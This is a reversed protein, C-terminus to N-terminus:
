GCLQVVLNSVEMNLADAEERTSAESYVRVCDETGSPRVFSRGQSFKAVIADIGPQLKEPTVVKREADTTTVMARDRVAVKGLRNPLDKYCNFWQECDWDRDALVCEVLLMDSIADGVTQNIVDMLANLKAGGKSRILAQTKEDFVVTGHGNAEFYVGIPFQVARHHLHKVGTPTFAVPVGLQNTIYATSSGNAYATQVLGPQIQDSLGAEALLQQLHGAVLTAIRDGDLLHFGESSEFYYIVRDADGDVSVCRLGPILKQGAPGSQNVKVYDAGCGSNLEGEGQNVMQVELVGSLLKNFEAMAPAGVGNAGDFLLKSKYVKKEGTLSLFKKFANSLKAYYGEITPEGYSGNTNTAVVMYHLQPTTVVGLDVVSGGAAEVGRVCAESLAPSSVRTDRGVVVKGGTAPISYKAVIEELQKPLETDPCNALLTAAAEWDQELMEGAPDVLKVGNDPAPNHSATIMAGISVGGKSRSRLVALLGMRYLVHDLLEAKTRFGATGYKIFKEHSRPHSSTAVKL